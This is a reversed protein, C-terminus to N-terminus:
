VCTGGTNHHIELGQFPYAREPKTLGRDFPNRADPNHPLSTGQLVTRGVCYTYEWKGQDQSLM